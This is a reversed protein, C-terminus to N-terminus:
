TFKFTKVGTSYPTKEPTAFISLAPMFQCKLSQTFLHYKKLGVHIVKRRETNRFFFKEHMTGSM